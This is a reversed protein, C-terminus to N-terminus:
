WFTYRYRLVLRTPSYNDAWYSRNLQEINRQPVQMGGGIEKQLNHRLKKSKPCDVLVHVVTEPAGYECKGDEGFGHVKWVRPDFCLFGM